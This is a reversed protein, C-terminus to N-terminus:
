RIALELQTLVAGAEGILRETREAWDPEFLRVRRATTKVRVLVEYLRARLLREAPAGASYGSLFEQQAAAFSSGGRGDHWWHIDSLFKGMDIAPDALYCTDFDILTLGETTAWLHDAKFDGHAFGPPEQPLRESIMRVRDLIADIVGATGPLLTRVPESARVIGQVEDELSHVQLNVVDLPMRHLAALAAGARHMIMSTARDPSRLLASIPTGSVLPYLVVNDASVYARPRGTRLGDSRAALWDAVRTVLAFTREGKDSNYVKAFVATGSGDCADYRLVHRQGPRYRVASVAYARSPDGPPEGGPGLLRGVHDPDCLRVLQRFRADLPAIQIRMGWGPVEAALKRFPAALGRAAAEAQMNEVDASTGSKDIAGPARWTVEVQRTQRAGREPGRLIVEYVASLYRGPKYKARHLHCEGLMDAAPLLGALTQRLMGQPREDLLVWQVGALGEHSWLASTITPEM